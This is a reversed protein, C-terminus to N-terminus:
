FHFYHLIEYNHQNCQKETNVNLFIFNTQETYKNLDHTVINFIPMGM